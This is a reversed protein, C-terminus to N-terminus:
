ILEQLLNTNKITIKLSYSIHNTKGCGNFRLSFILTKPYKIISICVTLDKPKMSRMFDWSFEDTLKDILM